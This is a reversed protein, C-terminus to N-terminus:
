LAVDPANAAAFYYVDFTLVVRGTPQQAEGSLEPETIDTLAITTGHGPLTMGAVAIEVEKCMQDLTDDIDATARAIAGVRVRFHREQQPPSHVTAVLITEDGSAILLGPLDATELPYVRSMFVRSGTTTLGTLASAIAERAQQRIHAAM